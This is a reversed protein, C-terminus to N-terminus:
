RRSRSPRARRAAGAGIGRGAPPLPTEPAEAAAVDRPRTEEGSGATEPAAVDDKRRM